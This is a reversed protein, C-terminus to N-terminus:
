GRLAEASPHAFKVDAEKFPFRRDLERKLWRSLLAAIAVDSIDVNRFLAAAWLFNLNSLANHSFSM